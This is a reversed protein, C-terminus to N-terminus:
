WKIMMLKVDVSFYFGNTPLRKLLLHLGHGDRNPVFYELSLENDQLELTPQKVGLDNFISRYFLNGIRHFIEQNIWTGDRGWTKPRLSDTLRGIPLHIVCTLNMKDNKHWFYCGSFKENNLFRPHSEVIKDLWQTRVFKIWRYQFPNQQTSDMPSPNLNWTVSPLFNISM